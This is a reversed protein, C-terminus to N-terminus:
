AFRPSESGGFTRREAALWLSDRLPSRCAALFARALGGSGGAYTPLAILMGRPRTLGFSGM